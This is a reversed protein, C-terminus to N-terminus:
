PSLERHLWARAHRWDRKVTNPSVGLVAAAEEVSLGGFFRLEVVRGQREDLEALRTLAQDLALIDLGRDDVLLLEEKLTVQSAGGGRKEAKRKRAYDLLVRRMATAAIAMFHSRNSWPAEQGMLKGYAEHVLATPQLTHDSRERSMFGGALRRLEEYIIPFLENAAQENGAQLQNLLITVESATDELLAGEGREQRAGDRM